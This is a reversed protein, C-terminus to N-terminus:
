VKQKYSWRGFVRVASWMCRATFEYAQKKLGERDYGCAVVGDYLDRDAQSRSIGYKHGYRYDFDHQVCILCYRKRDVILKALWKVLDPTSCEDTEQLVKSWDEIAKPSNLVSVSSWNPEGALARDSDDPM